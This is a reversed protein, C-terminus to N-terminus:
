KIINNSVDFCNLGNIKLKKQSMYMILFITIRDVSYFTFILYLVLEMRAKSIDKGYFYCSSIPIYM